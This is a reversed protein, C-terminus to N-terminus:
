IHKIELLKQGSINTINGNPDECTCEHSYITNFLYTKIPNFDVIYSVHIVCM